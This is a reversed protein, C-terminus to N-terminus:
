YDSSEMSELYIRAISYGAVEHLRTITSQKPSTRGNEIKWLTSCNLGLKKAFIRRSEGREERAHKFTKGLNM